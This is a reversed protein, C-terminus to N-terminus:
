KRKWSERYIKWEKDENIFILTKVGIATFGSSKYNQLFKVVINNKNKEIKFDSATVKIYGYRSALSKKRAVWEEKNLGDSQFDKSYHSAYANIEKKRWVELWDAIVERIDPGQEIHQILNDASTVLPSGNKILNKDYSQYVDGVIKFTNSKEVVFLKRIGFDVRQKLLSLGMNFIIVYVGDQKYIGKNEIIVNFEGINKKAERRYDHWKKWWLIEPLYTSDYMSLYDHYSGKNLADEWDKFWEQIRMRKSFLTGTDEMSLTNVIIVPTNNIAIYDSINVINADEMAVCGNSDMAKLVKNTGHLWINNGGKGAAKDIFNPYDIPFAKKGYIASLDKDEYRDKIFYVGEPTKKDGSREKNGYNEGTSCLFQLNKSIIEGVNSYLFLQQSSKEVLIANNNEPLFILSDPLKGSVNAFVKFNIFCFVILLLFFKFKQHVEWGEM